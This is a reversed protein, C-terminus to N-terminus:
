EARARARARIHTHTHITCVVLHTHTHITCVVLYAPTHKHVVLLRGFMTTVHAIGAAEMEKVSAENAELYRREVCVCACVRVHLIVRRLAICETM